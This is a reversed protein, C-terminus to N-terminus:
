ARSDFSAYKQGPASCAYKSTNEPHMWVYTNQISVIVYMLLAIPSSSYPLGSWLSQPQPGMAQKALSAHFWSIIIKLLNESSELLFFRISLMVPASNILAHEAIPAPRATIAPIPGPIPCPIAAPWAADATPLFGPAFDSMVDVM